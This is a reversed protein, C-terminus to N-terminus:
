SNRPISSLYHGTMSPILRHRIWLCKFLRITRVAGVIQGLYKYSSEIMVRNDFGTIIIYNKKDKINHLVNLLLTSYLHCGRFSKDVLNNSSYVTNEEFKVVHKHKLKLSEFSPANIDVIGEHLWMGAVVNQSYCIAFFRSSEMELAIEEATTFTKYGNRRYFKAIDVLNERLTYEKFQFGDVTQIDFSRTVESIDFRFVLTSNILCVRNLIM